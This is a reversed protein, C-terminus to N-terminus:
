NRYWWGLEAFGSRHNKSNEVAYWYEGLDTGTSLHILAPVRSSNRLVWINTKQGKLLTGTSLKLASIWYLIQQKWCILKGFDTKASLECRFCEVQGWIESFSNLYGELSSEVLVGYNASNLASCILNLICANCTTLNKPKSTHFNFDM